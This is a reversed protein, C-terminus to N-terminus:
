VIIVITFHFIKFPSTHVPAQSQKPVFSTLKRSSLSHQGGFSKVQSMKSSTTVLEWFLIVDM